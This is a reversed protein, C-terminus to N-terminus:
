EIPPIVVHPLDAGTLAFIREKGGVKEFVGIRHSILLDITLYM